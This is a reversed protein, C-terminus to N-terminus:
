KGGKGVQLSVILRRLRLDRHGAGHRVPGAEEIVLATVTPPWATSSCTLRLRRGCLPVLVLPQRSPALPFLLLRATPESPDEALEALGLVM